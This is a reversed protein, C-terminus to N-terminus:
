PAGNLVVVPKLPWTEIAAKAEAVDQFLNPNAIFQTTTAFSGSEYSKECVFGLFHVRERAVTAGGVVTRPSFVGSFLKGDWCLRDFPERVYEGGLGVHIRDHVDGGHIFTRFDILIVHYADSPLAFKHPKGHHECKQCIREVAKLTEGAPSERRDRADTSLMRSSWRTGSEDVHTYTARQVAETEELRMLEVLWHQESVTFGFDLTSRGEGPVEYALSIGIQHLAYGFRLEFFRAKNVRTLGGDTGIQNLLPFAWTQDALERMIKDVFQAEEVSLSDWFKEDDNM